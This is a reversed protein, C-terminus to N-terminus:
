ELRPPTSHITEPYSPLPTPPPTPPPLHHDCVVAAGADIRPRPDGFRRDFGGEGTMARLLRTVTPEEEQAAAAAERLGPRPPQPQAANAAASSSSSPSYLAGSEAIAKITAARFREAPGQFARPRGRPDYWWWENVVGAMYGSFQPQLCCAWRSGRTM